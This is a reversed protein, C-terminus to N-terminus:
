LTVEIVLTIKYITDMFDHYCIIILIGEGSCIDPLKTETGWPGSTTGILCSLM